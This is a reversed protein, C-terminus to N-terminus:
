AHQVKKKHASWRPGDAPLTPRSVCDMRSNLVSQPESSAAAFTHRGANTVGEVNSSEVNTCQRINSGEGSREQPATHDSRAQQERYVRAEPLGCRRLARCGGCRQANICAREADGGDRLVMLAVAGSVGGALMVQAAGRLMGRRTTMASDRVRVGDRAESV